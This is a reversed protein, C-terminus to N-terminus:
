RLEKCPYKGTKVKEIVWQIPYVSGTDYKDYPPVLDGIHVYEHNIKWVYWRHSVTMNSIDGESDCRFMINETDGFIKSKGCKYCLGDLVGYRIGYVHAYFLVEGSAIEDMDVDEDIPYKKKFVRVVKSYLQSTDKTVYQMYQKYLGDVEICFIDGMRVVFRKKEM